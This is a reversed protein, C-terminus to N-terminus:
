EVGERKYIDFNAASGIKKYDKMYKDFFEYPRLYELVPAEQIFILVPKRSAIDSGYQEIVQPERALLTKVELSPTAADKIYQLVSLICCHLHRSGPMLRFQTLLPYGPSVGNSIFIVHDLPRTYRMLYETFPSDIDSWPSNGKYGLLSMDYQREARVSQSEELANTTILMCAGAFVPIDHYPWGKFQMLYPIISAMTFVTLPLLLATRKLQSLALAVGLCALYFVGRKDPAAISNALCTDWFFYGKAFAPVLFHFYNDLMEKPAFAFHVLYLLAFCFAGLNEWAFLAKPRRYALLMSLEVMLAVLVFYHKLCIGIAGTVGFILGEAVTIRAGQYRLLRLVLYPLYLLVFIEERQGFDWRLFFNFYLAGFILGLYAFAQDPQVKKILLYGLLIATWAMLLVMFENFVLTVPAKFAESVFVPLTDLYWILPPNVDLMDVYPIGGKVILEACQLHLAPDWGIRLPHLFISVLMRLCLVVMVWLSFVFLNKRSYTARQM